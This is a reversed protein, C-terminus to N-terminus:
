KFIREALGDVVQWATQAPLPMHKAIIDLTPKLLEYQSRRYKKYAPIFDGTALDRLLRLVEPNSGVPSRGAKIRRVLWARHEKWQHIRMKSLLSKRTVARFKKKCQSCVASYMAM